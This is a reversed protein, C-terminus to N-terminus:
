GAWFNVSVTCPLPSPADCVYNNIKSQLDNVCERTDEKYTSREAPCQCQCEAGERLAYSNEVRECLNYGCGTISSKFIIDLSSLNSRVRIMMKILPRIGLSYHSNLQYLGDM